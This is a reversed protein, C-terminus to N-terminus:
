RGLLTTITDILPRFEIPKTLYGQFGARRVRNAHHLDGYATIAIVPTAGGKEKPLAALRRRLWYGDHRPM